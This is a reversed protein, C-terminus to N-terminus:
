NEKIIETGLDFYMASECSFKTKHKVVFLEECYFEYGIIQMYGTQTSKIFYINRFKSSYM